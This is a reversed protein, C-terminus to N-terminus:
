CNGGSVLTDNCRQILIHKNLTWRVINITVVQGHGHHQGIYWQMTTQEGRPINVTVVQCEPQMPSSSWSRSYNAEEILNLHLGKALLTQAVTIAITYLADEIHPVQAHSVRCHSFILFVNVSWSWTLWSEPIPVSSPQPWSTKQSFVALGPESFATLVKIECLWSQFEFSPPQPWAVKQCFSCSKSRLAWLLALKWICIFINVLDFIKWM